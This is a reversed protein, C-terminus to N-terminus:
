GDLGLRQFTVPAEDFEVYPLRARKVTIVRVIAFVVALTLLTRTSGAGELFQHQMQAFMSAGVIFAIAYIPALAKM